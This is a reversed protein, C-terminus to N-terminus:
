AINSSIFLDTTFFTHFQRCIGAIQQCVGLIVRWIGLLLVYVNVAHMVANFGLMYYPFINDYLNEYREFTFSQLFFLFQQCAVSAAYFFALYM